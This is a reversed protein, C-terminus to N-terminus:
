AHRVRSKNAEKARSFVAGLMVAFTGLLGGLVGAVVVILTRRPRSRYKPPEARDVVRFSFEKNGRAVMAKQLENELLSSISQQLSVVNTQALANRLYEMNTEAERLARSRMQENLQEVMLNAWKASLAPDTWEIQLTVMGTEADEKVTRIHDNFMKVAERMDPASAEGSKWQKAEADWDEAYLIPLLSHREIFERTLDRSQLIALAEARPGTSTQVGALRALGGLQGPLTPTMNDEAPALLVEARYWETALLSYIAGLIALALGAIVITWKRSWLLFAIEVLDIEDDRPSALADHALIYLRGRSDESPFQHREGSDQGSSEM